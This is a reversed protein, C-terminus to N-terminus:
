EKWFFKWPNRKLDRLMERLDAYLEESVLLAGATGKGARLDTVMGDVNDILGEAKGAAEAARDIADIAKDVREETLMGTVRLADQLLEETPPTLTQLSQNTTTLLEDAHRVTRGIIRPDGLGQRIDDLAATGRQALADTSTLLSGIQERNESLLTNVEEAASASNRLLNGIAERDDRLVDSFAELVDYLRSLLLDVRPPSNGLHISGAEIPPADYDDGPVIELYQEGLVGATNIFFESDQRMAERARDEVWAELRVYVRRTSDEDLQGGLFEVDSVNGIKFGALRIPAGPQINGSYDFDVYFSFGPRLSLGGLLALFGVVLAIAIVILIGVKYELGRTQM